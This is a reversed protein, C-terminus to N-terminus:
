LWVEQGDPLILADPRLSLRNWSAAGARRWLHGNTNVYYFIGIHDVYLRQSGCTSQFLFGRRDQNILDWRDRLLATLPEQLTDDRSM